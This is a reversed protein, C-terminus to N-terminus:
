LIKNFLYNTGNATKQITTCLYNNSKLFLQIALNDEPVITEICFGGLKMVEEELRQMLQTGITQRKDSVFIHEIRAGNSVPQFLIYGKNCMLGRSDKLYERLFKEDEGSLKSLETADEAFCYRIRKKM